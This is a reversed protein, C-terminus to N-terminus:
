KNGTWRLNCWSGSSQSQETQASYNRSIYDSGKIHKHTHIPRQQQTICHQHTHLHRTCLPLRPRVANSDNQWIRWWWRQWHSAQQTATPTTVVCIYTIGKNDKNVSLCVNMKRGKKWPLMPLGASYLINIFCSIIPHCHCWSSWIYIMQVGSWVSLWTLV